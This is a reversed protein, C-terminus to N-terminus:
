MCPLHKSDINAADHEKSVAIDRQKQECRAPYSAAQNHPISTSARLTTQEVVNKGFRSFNPVVLQNKM